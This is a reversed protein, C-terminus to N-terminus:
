GAGPVGPIGGFIVTSPLPRETQTRPLLFMPGHDTQDLLVTEFIWHCIKAGTYLGPGTKM